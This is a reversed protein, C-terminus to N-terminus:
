RKGSLLEITKSVFLEATHVVKGASDESYVLGYDADERLDMTEKAARLLSPEMKNKNVYFEEIATFLCYHGKERYNEAYVLAKAAHFVAYYAQVTAWKFDRENLSKKAKELDYKAGDIEKSIINLDSKFRVLRAREICDKFEFNMTKWGM